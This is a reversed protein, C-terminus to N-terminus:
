PDRRPRARPGPSWRASPRAAPRARCPMTIVEVPADCRSSSLPARTRTRSSHSRPVTSTCATNVPPRAAFGDARAKTAKIEWARGSTWRSNTEATPHRFWAAATSPPPIRAQSRWESTGSLAMLVLESCRHSIAIQPGPASQRTSASVSMLSGNSLWASYAMRLQNEFNWLRGGTRKRPGAAEPGCFICTHGRCDTRAPRLCFIASQEHRPYLKGTFVRAEGYDCLQATLVRETRFTTM